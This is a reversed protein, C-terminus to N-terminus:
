SLQQLLKYYVGPPIVSGGLVILNMNVSFETTVVRGFSRGYVRCLAAVEIFTIGSTKRLIGYTILFVNLVRYPFPM